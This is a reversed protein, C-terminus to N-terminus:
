QLMMAIVPRTKEVEQLDLQLGMPALQQQLMEYFPRIEQFPGMVTQRPTAGFNNLLTKDAKADILQQVIEVRCFFAAAHLATSGDNNKISLDAGADILAQAIEKKGFTAATILPTSGGFPEKGNLDTGADIHQRVAELNGSIVATHLDVTPANVMTEAVEKKSNQACASFLFMTVMLLSMKRLSNMQITKM